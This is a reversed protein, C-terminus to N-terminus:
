SDRQNTEVKLELKQKGQSVPSIESSEIEEEKAKEASGEKM